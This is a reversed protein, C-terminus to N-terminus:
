GQVNASIVWNFRKENVRSLGTIAYTQGFYKVKWDGDLAWDTRFWIKFEKADSLTTRGTVQSRSGGLDTVEAWLTWTQVTQTQDGNADMTTTYKSLKIPKYDGIGAM